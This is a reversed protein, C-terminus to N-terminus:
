CINICVELKQIINLYDKPPSNVHPYYKQFSQFNTNSILLMAIISPIKKAGDPLACDTYALRHGDTAVSRLVPAESSEPRHFFVGNLYYRTEETSIAFRTKDLLKKLDKSSIEFNNPLSENSVVPFEERSLSPLSFKSRGSKIGLQSKDDDTYLEVQAGDPLKRVIEYLLHASTTTAGETIIEASIVEVMSLDLDTATLYLNSNECSILINSLIPITNKKEVANQIRSIASYLHTREIKFKM